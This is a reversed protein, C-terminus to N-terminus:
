LTTRTKCRNAHRTEETLLLEHTHNAARKISAHDFRIGLFDTTRASPNDRVVRPSKLFRNERTVGMADRSTSSGHSPEAPMMQSAVLVIRQSEGKSRIWDCNILSEPRDLGAGPFSVYPGLGIACTLELGFRRSVINLLRTLANKGFGDGSLLVWSSMASSKEVDPASPLGRVVPKTRLALSHLGTKRTSYGNATQSRSADVRPIAKWAAPLWIPDSPSRRGRRETSSPESASALTQTITLV